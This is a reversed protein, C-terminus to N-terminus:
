PSVIEWGTPTWHLLAGSIPRQATQALRVAFTRIADLAIRDKAEGYVVIDTAPVVVVLAGHLKKALASWDDHLLLRSSDYFNGNIYGIGNPPLDHIVASLPPLAAAVNQKGLAIADDESLGLKALDVKNLPKIGRPRDAVCLLWLENGAVPRAILEADPKGALQRRADEIYRGSRAVVRIESKQIPANAEKLTAAVNAIFDNLARECDETKRRCYAAVNDLHVDVSLPPAGIGLALPGKITVKAGTLAKTFADAAYTTFGSADTPIGAGRTPGALLLLWALVLGTFLYVGRLRAM